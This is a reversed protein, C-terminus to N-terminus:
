HYTNELTNAYVCNLEWTTKKFKKGFSLNQITFM